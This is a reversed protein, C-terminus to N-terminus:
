NFGGMSAEIEVIKSHKMFKVKKENRKEETKVSNRHPKEAGTLVGRWGKVCVSYGGTL